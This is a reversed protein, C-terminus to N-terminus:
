GKCTFEGKGPQTIKASTPTGTLTWGEGTLPDGATVATLKTAPGTKESRVLAQKDGNFFTVFFLANGPQCRMSKEAKISPPLEVPARNAIEAAQPDESVSSVVEPDKNSNCATLALLSVAVISPLLKKMAPAAERVRLFVDLSRPSVTHQATHM